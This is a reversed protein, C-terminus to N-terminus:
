RRSLDHMEQGPARREAELEELTVERTLVQVFQGMSEDIDSESSSAPIVWSSSPTIKLKAKAQNRSKGGMEKEERYWKACRRKRPYISSSDIRRHVKRDGQIGTPNVTTVNFSRTHRLPGCM